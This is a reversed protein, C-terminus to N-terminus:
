TETADRSGELMKVIVDQPVHQAMPCEGTQVVDEYIRASKHFVDLMDPGDKMLQEKLQFFAREM